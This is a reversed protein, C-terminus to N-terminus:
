RSIRSDNDIQNITNLAKQTDRPDNVVRLTQPWAGLQQHIMRLLETQEEAQEMMQAMQNMDVGATASSPLSAATSGGVAFARGKVRETELYRFINAYKPSSMMWNPGVWEAGKEGIVGFSANGIHGGDAYSGVWRTSQGDPMQWSGSAQNYMMDVVNGTGTGGGGAYKTSRIKNVAIGTRAGAAGTQIAALIAGSGPVLINMPNSNSNKWIAAVEAIGDSVVKGIELAKMASVFGKRAKSEEDLLELGVSLIDRAASIGEEKIMKKAEQTRREQEIQGDAIEKDINLITNKLKQAQLTEGQGSAELLALKEVAYQRQIELMREKQEAERDVANIYANELQIAEMDQEEQLRTLKQTLEEKQKEEELAKKVAEAEQEKLEQMTNFEDIVRQREELTLIENELILDRKATMAELERQTDLELKALKKATGEEMVAIRLDEVAKEAAATAKVYENRLQVIKKQNEEEAKREEDLRKKREASIQALASNELSRASARKKAATAEFNTREAILQRLEKEDTRSTDNFSNELEKREIKLDLFKQEEEMLQNQAAQAARAAAVREQESKTVDQAIEKQENYEANLKARTVILDNETEEIIRNLDALRSGQEVSEEIFGKTEQFAGNMKDIGDTIGTTGQIIADGMKKAGDIIDGNMIMQLAEFGVGVAKIRNLLNTKIFDVFQEFAKRPNNIAETLRSLIGGGLEQLIGITRQFIVNLPQLVRQVKDMGDQTSTLYNIVLGLAVVLAGLGTSIIAGRLTKFAGGVNGLVGTWKGFMGAIGQIQSGFPIMNMFESNLAKQAKEAGFMSEKVEGMRGRVEKLKESKKAFEESEPPLKKLQNQLLRAAASMDNFTANVQTGDAIIKIKREESSAMISTKHCLFLGL